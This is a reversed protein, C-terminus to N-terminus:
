VDSRNQGIWAVLTDLMAQLVDADTRGSKRPVHFAHDAADELHLTARGGLGAVTAELLALEALADRTGQLFLM